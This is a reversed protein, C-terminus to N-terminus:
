ATFRPVLVGEAVKERWHKKLGGSLIEERPEYVAGEETWELARNLSNIWVCNGDIMEAGTSARGAHYARNVASMVLGLQHGTLQNRLDEPIYSLVANITAAGAFGDYAALARDMKTGQRAMSAVPAMGKVPINACDLGYNTLSCTRCNGGNQTCYSKKM